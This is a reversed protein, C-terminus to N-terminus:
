SNNSNIYNAARPEAPQYSHNFRDRCQLAKHGSFGCIQCNPGNGNRRNQRNDNRRDRNGDNRRDRHNGNNRRPKYQGGGGGGNGGPRFNGGGHQYGRSVSNASANGM